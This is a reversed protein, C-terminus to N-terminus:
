PKLALNVKISNGHQQESSVPGSTQSKFHREHWESYHHYQVCNSHIEKDILIKILLARENAWSRLGIAQQEPLDSLKIFEIGRYVRSPFKSM